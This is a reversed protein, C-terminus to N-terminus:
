VAAVPPSTKPANLLLPCARLVEQVSTVLVGIRYARAIAPSQESHLLPDRLTSTNSLACAVHLLATRPTSKSWANQSEILSGPISRESPKRRPIDEIQQHHRCFRHAHDAFAFHAAQLLPLLCFWAVLYVALIGGTTWRFGTVSKKKKTTAIVEVTRGASERLENQKWYLAIGGFTLCDGRRLMGKTSMPSLYSVFPKLKGNHEPALPVL